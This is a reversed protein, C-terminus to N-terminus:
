VALEENRINVLLFVLMGGYSTCNLGENLACGLCKNLNKVHFVFRFLTLSSLHFHTRRFEAMSNLSLVRYQKQQRFSLTLDTHTLNRLCQYLCDKFSILKRSQNEHMQYLHVMKGRCPWCYLSSVFNLSCCCLLLRSLTPLQARM